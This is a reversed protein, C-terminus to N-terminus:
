VKAHMINADEPALQTVVVKVLEQVALLVYEVVMVVVVMPLM